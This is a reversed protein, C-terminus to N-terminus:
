RGIVFLEDELEKRDKDMKAVKKKADALERECSRLEENTMQLTKSTGMKAKTARSDTLNPLPSFGATKSVQATCSQGFLKTGPPSFAGYDRWSQFAPM